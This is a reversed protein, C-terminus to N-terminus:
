YLFTSTIICSHIILQQNQTLSLPHLDAVSAAKTLWNGSFQFNVKGWKDVQTQFWSPPCCSHLMEFLCQDVKKQWSKLSLMQKFAVAHTVKLLPWKHSHHLLTISHSQDWNSLCPFSASSGCWTQPTWALSEEGRWQYFLSVLMLWGQAQILCGGAWQYWIFDLALRLLKWLTRLLNCLSM